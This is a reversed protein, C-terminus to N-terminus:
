TVTELPQFMFGNRFHWFFQTKELPWKLRAEFTLREGYAGTNFRGVDDIFIARKSGSRFIVKLGSCIEEEM